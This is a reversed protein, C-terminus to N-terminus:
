VGNSCRTGGCSTSRCASMEGQAVDVEFTPSNYYWQRARVHHRGPACPAELSGQPMLNGVRKGDLSVVFAGLQQNRVWPRPTTLIITAGNTMAQDYSQM